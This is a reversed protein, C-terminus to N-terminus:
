ADHERSQGGLGATRRIQKIAEAVDVCILIDRGFGLDAEAGGSRCPAVYLSLIADQEARLRDREAQLVAVRQRIATNAERLGCDCVHGRDEIEAM